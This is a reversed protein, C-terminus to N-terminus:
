FFSRQSLGLLFWYNASSYVATLSAPLPYGAIAMFGGCFNIQGSFPTNRMVHGAGNDMALAFHYPGGPPLPTPSISVVQAANIGAQPVPGSSVIRQFRADYIGIDCNGSMTAGNLWFLMTAVIPQRGLNYFAHGYARNAAPFAQTTANVISGGGGVLEAGASELSGTHVTPGAELYAGSPWDSV